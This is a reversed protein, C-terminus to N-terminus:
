NGASFNCIFLWGLLDASEVVEAPMGAAFAGTAGAVPAAPGYHQGLFAPRANQSM